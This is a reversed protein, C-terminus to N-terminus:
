QISTTVIQRKNDAEKQETQVIGDFRGFNSARSDSGSVVVKDRWNFKASM